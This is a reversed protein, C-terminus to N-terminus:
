KEVVEEFRISSHAHFLPNWGDKPTGDLTQTATTRAITTHAIYINM